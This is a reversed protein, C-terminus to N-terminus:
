VDRGGGLEPRSFCRGPSETVRDPDPSRTHPHAHVPDRTQEPSQTSATGVRVGPWSGGQASWGPDPGM